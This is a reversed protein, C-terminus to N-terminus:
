PLRVNFAQKFTIDAFIANLKFSAEKPTLENLTAKSDVAVVKGNGVQMTFRSNPMRFTIPCTKQEAQDTLFLQYNAAASYEGPEEKFTELAEKSSFFVIGENHNLYFEKQAPVREVPCRIKDLNVRKVFREVQAVSPATAGSNDVTKSDVKSAAPKSSPQSDDLSANESTAPKKMEPSNEVASNKSLKEGNVGGPNMVPQKIISAAIGPENFYIVHPGLDAQTPFTINEGQEYFKRYM